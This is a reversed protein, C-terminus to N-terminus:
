GGPQRVPLAVRGDDKALSVGVHPLAEQLRRCLAKVGPLETEAHGADVIVLGADRADALTHYKVDGTVYAQCGRAAAEAFMEGGGGGCVAVNRVSAEPDGAFRTAQADLKRAVFEAFERARMPEPLTGCRGLRSEEIDNELPHIDFAPEEYPHAALMAQVVAATRHEPMISELRVEPVRELVGPRGIHPRAAESPLFTGTGESRFTCNSYKGISGAGAGCIAAAVDEVNRPPVFVVLKRLKARAAVMPRVDRLGLCQALVDNVGGPASDYNTHAAFLAVGRRVFGAVLREVASAGTLSALPKFILPHHSVVLQAGREVAEDLVRPTPTLAVLVRDVSAEADGVQLGIRDWEEAFRAPAIEEMVAAVDKIKM